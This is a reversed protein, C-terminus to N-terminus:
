DPITLVNGRFAILNSAPPSALIPPVNALTIKPAAGPTGGRPAWRDRAVRGRLVDVLEELVPRNPERLEPLKPLVGVLSPTIAGVARDRHLQVLGGATL